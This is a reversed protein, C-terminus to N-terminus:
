ADREGPIIHKGCIKYKKFYFDWVMKRSYKNMPEIAKTLSVKRGIYAYFNDQPHCKAVGVFKNGTKTIVICVTARQEPDVYFDISKVKPRINVNSVDEFRFGDRFAYRLADMSHDQVEKIVTNDVGIYAIKM